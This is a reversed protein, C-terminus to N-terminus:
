LVFLDGVRMQGLAPCEAAVVLVWSLQLDAPLQPPFAFFKQDGGESCVGRAGEAGEWPQGLALSLVMGDGSSFIWGFGWPLPEM